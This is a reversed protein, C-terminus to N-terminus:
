RSAASMTGTAIMRCVPMTQAREVARFCKTTLAITRVCTVTEHHSERSSQRTYANPDPFGVWPSASVVAEAGIIRRMQMVHYRYFRSSPDGNAAPGLLCKVLPDGGEGVAELADGDPMRMLQLLDRFLSFLHEM